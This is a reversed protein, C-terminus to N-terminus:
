NLGFVTKCVAQPFEDPLVWWNFTRGVLGVRVALIRGTNGNWWQEHKEEL